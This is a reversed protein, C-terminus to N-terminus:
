LLYKVLDNYVKLAFYREYTCTVYLFAQSTSAIATYMTKGRVNSAKLCISIGDVQKHAITRNM